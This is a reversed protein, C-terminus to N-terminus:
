LPIWTGAKCRSANRNIPLLLGHIGARKPGIWEAASLVPELDTGVLQNTIPWAEQLRSYHRKGFVRCTLLVKGQSHRRPALRTM